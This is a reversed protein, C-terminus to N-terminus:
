DDLQDTSDPQDLTQQYAARFADGAHRYLLRVAKLCSQRRVYGEGSDAVVRGNKAVLRWRWERMADQYVECRYRNKRTAM